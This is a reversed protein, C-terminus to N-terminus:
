LKASPIKAEKFLFEKVRRFIKEHGKENPHLGDFLDNKNLLDQIPIFYVEKRKCTKEVVSNYRKINENCYSEGSKEWPITEEEEVKALGLFFIKDTFKKARKILEDLNKEFEDIKVWTNEKEKNYVSDNKGIDFVIIPFYSEPEEEFYIRAKLESEFRELLENSTNSEIGLNYVFNNEPTKNEFYIKLREVWGGKELDLAGWTVSAGFITIITTKEKM